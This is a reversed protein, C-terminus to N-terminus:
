FDSPVQVVTEVPEHIHGYAGLFVVSQIIRIRMCDHRTYGLLLAVTMKDKTCSSAHRAYRGAAARLLCVVAAAAAAVAPHRETASATPKM